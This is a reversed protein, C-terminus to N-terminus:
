LNKNLVKKIFRMFLTGNEFLFAKDDTLLEPEQKSNYELIYEFEGYHRNVCHGENTEDQKIDKYEPERKGSFVLQQKDGPSDPLTRIVNETM